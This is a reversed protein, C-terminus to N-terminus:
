AKVPLFPSSRYRQRFENLIRRFEAGLSRTSDVQLFRGGTEHSIDRLFAPTYSGGVWVSYVVVDSRKATELVLNASLWSSTDLSDSFLMLVSRGVDSEGVIMGAYTGDVLATEGAGQVLDLAARVRAGEATLGSQQAVVHSFTVLAAQDDGSLTDLLEQGARRLSDLRDGSVSGSTDFVLVVNVPIRDISVVDVQQLVGNDRVEFDAPQLGHVPRGRETVLVDVRVGEVRASFSPGQARLISHLAGALVIAAALRTTRM